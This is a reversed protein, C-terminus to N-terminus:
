PLAIGKSKLIEKKLEEFATHEEKTWQFSMDGTLRTIPKAIKSYDKVYRRYFNCFGNFKQVEKKNKPLLWGKIVRVKAPEMRVQGNGVIHGLIPVEKVEWYCKAEKVYLEHRDLLKIGEITHEKLEQRTKGIFVIDDMYVICKEKRILDSFITAMMRSFTGPSNCLGFYMVLPEFLGRPTTFAAYKEDGKRIRINNYGWIIDM